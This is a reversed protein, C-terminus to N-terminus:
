NLARLFNRIRKHDAGRLVRVSIDLKHRPFTSFPKEVVRRLDRTMLERSKMMSARVDPTIRLNDQPVLAPREQHPGPPSKKDNDQIDAEIEIQLRHLRKLPPTSVVEALRSFISSLGDTPFKHRNNNITAASVALRMSFRLRTLM